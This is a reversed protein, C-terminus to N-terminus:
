KNERALEAEVQKVIDGLSHQVKEIYKYSGKEMAQAVLNVDELATLMIVKATKGWADKRLKDLVEMGGMKPMMIDLLILDPHIELAKALGEEGDHAGIADFGSITLKEVLVSNLNNDDDVVLIKKKVVKDM